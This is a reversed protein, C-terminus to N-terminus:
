LLFIRGFRHFTWGPKTGPRHGDVPWFNKRFFRRMPVRNYTDLLKVAAACMRERPVQTICGGNAPTQHRQLVNVQYGKRDETRYGYLHFDSQCVREINM